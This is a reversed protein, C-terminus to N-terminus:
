YITRSGAIPMIVTLQVNDMAMAWQGNDMTWQGNDM